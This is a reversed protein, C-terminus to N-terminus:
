ASEISFSADLNFDAIAKRLDDQTIPEPLGALDPQDPFHDLLMEYVFDVAQEESDTHRSMPMNKVRINSVYSDRM